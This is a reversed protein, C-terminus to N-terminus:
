ELLVKNDFMVVHRLQEVKDVDYDHKRYKKIMLFLGLTVLLLGALVTWIWPFDMDDRRELKGSLKWNPLCEFLNDPVHGFGDLCECKGPGVCIGNICERDCKPVCGDGLQYIFGELCECFGNEQCIGNLCIKDCSNIICEKSFKSYVSGKPCECIGNVCIGGGSCEDYDCNSSFENLTFVSSESSSESSLIPETTSITYKETTLRKCFSLRICEGLKFGYKEYDLVCSSDAKVYGENCQFNESSLETFSIIEKDTSPQSSSRTTGSHAGQIDALDEPETETFPKRAMENSPSISKTSFIQPRDTSAMHVERTTKLDESKSTSSSEPTSPESESSTTLYKTTSINDLTTRNDGCSETFNDYEFGSKCLCINPKSCFANTKCTPDCKPECSKGKMQYGRNCECTHTMCKSFEPCGEPCNPECIRLERNMTFGECCVRQHRTTPVDETVAYSVTKRKIGGYWRRYTLVKTQAKTVRLNTTIEKICWNADCFYSILVLWLFATLISKM